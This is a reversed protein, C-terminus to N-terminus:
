ILYIGIESICAMKLGLADIHRYMHMRKHLIEM